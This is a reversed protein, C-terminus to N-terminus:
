MFTLSLAFEFATRVSGTAEGLAAVVGEDVIELVVLCDDDADGATEDDDLKQGGEESEAQTLAEFVVAPATLELDSEGWGKGKSLEDMCNQNKTNKM